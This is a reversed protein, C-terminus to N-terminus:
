VVQIQFTATRLPETAWSRKYAFSLTGSGRELGTTFQFMQTSGMYGIQPIVKEEILSVIPSMEIIEWMFGSQPKAELSIVFKENPSFVKIPHNENTM